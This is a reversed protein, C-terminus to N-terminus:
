VVSHHRKTSRTGLGNFLSLSRLQSVWTGDDHYKTVFPMVFTASIIRGSLNLDPHAVRPDTKDDAAGSQSQLSLRKLMDQASKVTASVLLPSASQRRQGEFYDAADDPPGSPDKKKEEYASTGDPGVGPTVPPLSRQSRPSDMVSKGRIAPSEADM